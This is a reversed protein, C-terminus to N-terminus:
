NIFYSYYYIQKDSFALMVYINIYDKLSNLVLCIYYTFLYVSLLHLVSNNYETLQYEAM